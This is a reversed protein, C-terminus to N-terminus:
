PATKRPTMSGSSTASTRRTPGFPSPLPARYWLSEWYRRDLQYPDAPDDNQHNIPVIGYYKMERLYPACPRFGPM